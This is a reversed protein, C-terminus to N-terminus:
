SCALLRDIVQCISQQTRPGEFPIRNIFLVPPFKIKQARARAAAVNVVSEFQHSELDRAFRQTDLGIEQACREICEASLEQTHAFLAHHMEWFKGQAGAAEAAEAALQAFPHSHKLPYHRHVLCVAGGYAPLIENLIAHGQACHGCQYDSYEILVVPAIRSGCCWDDEAVPAPKTISALGRVTRLVAAPNPLTNSETPEYVRRILREEDVVFAVPLLVGSANCAGFQVALDRDPLSTIGPLSVLANSVIILDAHSAEFDSLHEQYKELESVLSDPCVLLVYLKASPNELQSIAPATIGPQLIPKM